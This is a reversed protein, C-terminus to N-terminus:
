QIPEIKGLEKGTVKDYLILSSFSSPYPYYRYASDYSDDWLYTENVNLSNLNVTLKVGLEYNQAESPPATFRITCDTQPARQAYDNTICSGDSVLVDSADNFNDFVYDHFDGMILSTEPYNHSVYRVTNATNQIGDFVSERPHQFIVRVTWTSTDADYGPSNIYEVTTFTVSGGIEALQESVRQDYEETTEFEGQSIYCLDLFAAVNKVIGTDLDITRACESLPKPYVTVDMSDSATAGDDDMVTLTLTDTGEVTPIYEFSPTSAVVISDKTWEYSVITGDRDTGSGTITIAQNVEISKDPGAYATPLINIGLDDVIKQIEEKTDVDSSTLGSVVENVDAINDSTVGVVGADVYDEITPVSQTNNDAYAKIKDMAITQPNDSIVTPTEGGGGGCATFFVVM